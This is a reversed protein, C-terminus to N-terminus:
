AGHMDFTSGGAGNGATAPARRTGCTRVGASCVGAWQGEGMENRARRVCTDASGWQVGRTSTTFAAARERRCTACCVHDHAILSRCCVSWRVDGGAHPTHRATVRPARRADVPPQTRKVAAAQSRGGGGNAIDTGHARRAGPVRSKRFCAARAVCGESCAVQDSCGAAGAACMFGLSLWRPRRTRTIEASADARYTSLARTCLACCCHLCCILPLRPRRGHFM